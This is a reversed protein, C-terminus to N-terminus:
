EDFKLKYMWGMSMNTLWNPTCRLLLNRLFCARKNEWHAMQGFKWATGVIRSTKPSRLCQYRQFVKQVDTCLSFQFALTCADEIAQAGGQGMNPTMAHAVDGLLVASGNWWRPIPMFDHLDTQIIEEKPTAKLLEPVPAPFGAYMEALQDAVNPSNPPSTIPAYWYVQRPGVSAFGFRLRGGWIERAASRFEHPLDFQAIGRYCTQGSYRLPAMNPFNAYRVRSRLGDAGILFDAPETQSGDDFLVRVFEGETVHKAYKKGFRVVDGPLAAALISVLDARQIALMGQGYQALSQSLDMKSLVKGNQLQIEVHLVPQGAARVQESLGLLDLCKM